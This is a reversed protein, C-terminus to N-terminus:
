LSAVILVLAAFGGVKEEELERYYKPPADSQRLSYVDKNLGQSKALWPLRSYADHCKSIKGDNVNWKTALM